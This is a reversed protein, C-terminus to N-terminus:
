NYIDRPLLALTLTLLESINSKKKLQAIVTILDVGDLM